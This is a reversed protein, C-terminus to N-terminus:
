PQVKRNSLQIAAALRAQTQPVNAGPEVLYRWLTQAVADRTLEDTAMRHAMSPLRAATPAAFTEWSARACSDMSRLQAPSLDRRVPVSGKVRNYALQPV